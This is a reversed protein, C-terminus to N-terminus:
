RFWGGVLREIAVNPDPEEDPRDGLALCTTCENVIPAPPSLIEEVSELFELAARLEYSKPALAPLDAVRELFAVLDRREHPQMNAWRIM